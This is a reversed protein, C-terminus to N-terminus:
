KCPFGKGIFKVNIGVAKFLDKIRKERESESFDTRDNTEMLDSAIKSDRCGDLLWQAEEPVKELLWQAEEPIKEKIDMPCALSRLEKKTLGCASLYIGLCCQAKRDHTLLKGKNEGCGRGWIKRNIILNKM